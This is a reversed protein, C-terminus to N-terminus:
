MNIKSKCVRSFAPDKYFGPRFFSDTKIGYKPNKFIILFLHQRVPYDMISNIENRLLFPQAVFCHIVSRHRSCYVFVGTFLVPSAAQCSFLLVVEFTWNLSCLSLDRFFMRAQQCLSTLVAPGHFSRFNLGLCGPGLPGHSFGSLQGLESMLM